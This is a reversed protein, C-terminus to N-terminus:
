DVTSQHERAYRRYILYIFLIAAIPFIYILYSSSEPNSEPEKKQNSNDIVSGTTEPTEPQSLVAPTANSILTKLSSRLSYNSVTSGGIAAQTRNITVTVQATNGVNDTALIIFSNDGLSLAVDTSFNSPNSISVGNISLSAVGSESDTVSGKITYKDLTTSISAAPQTITIVPSTTDSTGTVTLTIENGDAYGGYPDTARFTVDESGVWWSPQNFSVQHTSSDISVTIRTNGSVSYTVTQNPNPTTSNNPDSFYDDM